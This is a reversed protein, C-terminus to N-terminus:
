SINNLKVYKKLDELSNVDKLWKGNLYYYEKKNGNEDYHIAAPGNENHRLDNLWYSESRINGNLYYAIIPKIM